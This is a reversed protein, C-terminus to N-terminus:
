NMLSSNQHDNKVIEQGYSFFHFFSVRGWYVKIKSARKSVIQGKTVSLGEAWKVILGSCCLRTYLSAILPIILTNGKVINNLMLDLFPEKTEQKHVVFVYTCTNILSM